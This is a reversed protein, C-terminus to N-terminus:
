ALPLCWVRVGAVGRGQGGEGRERGQRRGRRQRRCRRRRRRRRARHGGWRNSTQPWWQVARSLTALTGDRAWARPRAGYTTWYRCRRSESVGCRRPAACTRARRLPLPHPLPHPWTCRACRQPLRSPRPRALRPEARCLGVQRGYAMCHPTSLIHLRRYSSVSVSLACKPVAKSTPKHMNDSKRQKLRTSTSRTRQQCQPSGVVRSRRSHQILLCNRSSNSSETGNGSSKGADEDHDSITRTVEVNIRGFRLSVSSQLEPGLDM